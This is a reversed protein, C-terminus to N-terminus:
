RSIRLAYRGPAKIDLRKAIESNEPDIIIVYGKWNSTLESDKCAPCVNEDVLRRCNKCVKVM